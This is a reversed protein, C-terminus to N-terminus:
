FWIVFVCCTYILIVLLELTCLLNQYVFMCWCLLGLGQNGWWEIIFCPKSLQAHQTFGQDQCVCPNIYSVRINLNVYVFIWWPLTRGIQKHRLTYKSIILSLPSSLYCFSNQNFFLKIRGKLILVRLLTWSM